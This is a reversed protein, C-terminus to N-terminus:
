LRAALQIQSLGHTKRFQRLFAGIDEPRRILIASFM